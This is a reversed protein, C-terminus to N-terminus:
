LEGWWTRMELRLEDLRGTFKQQCLADECTCCKHKGCDYDEHMPCGVLKAAYSVNLYRKKLHDQGSKNCWTKKRKATATSSNNRQMKANAKQKMIDNMVAEKEDASLPLELITSKNPPNSDSDDQGTKSNTDVIDELNPTPPAFLGFGSASQTRRSSIRTDANSITVKKKPSPTSFLKLKSYIMAQLSATAVFTVFILVSFLKRISTDNLWNELFFDVVGPWCWQSLITPVGYM